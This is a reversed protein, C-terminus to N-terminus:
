GLPLRPTSRARRGGHTGSPSPLRGLSDGPLAPGSSLAARPAKRRVSPASGEVGGIICPLAPGGGAATCRSRAVSVTLKLEANPAVASDFSSHPPARNPKNPSSVHSLVALPTRHSVHECPLVGHQSRHAVALADEERARRAGAFRVHAAGWGSGVVPHFARM